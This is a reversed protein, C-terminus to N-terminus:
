CRHIKRSCLGQRKVSQHLKLQFIKELVNEDIGTGSDKVRVYYCNDMQNLEIFLKIWAGDTEQVADAANNILNVIVQSLQVGQSQVSMSDLGKDMIIEFPIKHKSLRVLALLEIEKIVEAWVFEKFSDNSVDGPSSQSVKHMSEVINSIRRAMSEISDMQKEVIDKPISDRHLAKRLTTTAGMIVALPNNIEHAIGAVMESLTSM